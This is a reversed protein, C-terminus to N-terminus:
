GFLLYVRRLKAKNLKAVLSFQFNFVEIFSLNLFVATPEEFCEISISNAYKM